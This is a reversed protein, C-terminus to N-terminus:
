SLGKGRLICDIQAYTEEVTGNNDIVERCHARFTEEPLQSQMINRIKEESYGRSEKLRRSRNDDATFIYWLEDCIADYKEEILLAAELVLLGVGERRAQLAREIVYSKVAPHVIANLRERKKEDSFLVEAFKLRDIEGGPEFVDDAKFTERIREYCAGEPEMLQHAIEDALMVQAGWGKELHALIASKGAGVGGTIGIFLM